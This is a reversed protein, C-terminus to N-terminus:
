PLFDTAEFAVRVPHAMREKAVVAGDALGGPASFRVEHGTLDSEARRFRLAQPHEALVIWWGATRLEDVTIDLGALMIDPPLMAHFLSPASNAETAVDPLLPRGEADNGQERMAMVTLDPYRRVLEGRILVVARGSQNPPGGKVHTGLRGPKFRHIPDTLEDEAPNWFRHFYTGRSDTPYGRWLLERGMEDSLGVLFAETFEDNTSLLTVLEPEKLTGLGPVLWDRDYADLAQYMPRDFRPAAMIPRIVEGAFPDFALSGVELRARMTDLVTRNPDLRALVSTRTVALPAREPTLALKLASPADVLAAIQGRVDDVTVKAAQELWTSLLTSQPTAMRDLRQRETLVGAAVPDPPRLIPGALGGSVRESLGPAPLATGGRLMVQGPARIPRTPVIVPQFVPAPQVPRRIIAAELELAPEKLVAAGPVQSIVAGAALGGLWRSRVPDRGADLKIADGIQKIVRDTAVVGPKFTVDATKWLSPTSVATALLPAKQLRTAAAKVDALAKDAGVGFATALAQQDLLALAGASLGKLGDLEAYPRTFDRLGQGSGALSALGAREAGGLKRAIPGASRVSRRFAGGLAAEPTASRITQGALTLGVGDLRVRGAVPRTMQMLRGLEVQELRAHVSAALNRGLEALALARNAKEIEGVQAWAAQMLPEQDKVVVRTGLGGVVRHVPTLNLDGFWHGQSPLTATGRQGKAYIRPGIVPLNPIGGPDVGATGEVVAQQELATKLEGTRQLSWAATDSPQGAPPPFPSYLACRIVQRRGAENPQLDDLPAGPRSTDMIRRGVEWPAPVGVLRRALRAFDGDPATRFEWSDYVPLRVIGAGATWAPDLTGGGVGLGARVGADTTPVVCAVYDTNQTLVRAALLRAVNVPAWATSLRASLSPTGATAQAHAWAWGQNLPPLLAADVAIIPRLGAQMPEWQVEHKEFVVLAIWARMRDAATHASFAWPVEPRDFEIHAHFTEEAKTSGPAPYRRVVQGLEVGLVDGPGYLAVDQQAAATGGADDSLPLTVRTSARTGTAPTQMAASLGTLAYPVFDYAALSLKGVQYEDAADLTIALVDAVHQSLDALKAGRISQVQEFDAM